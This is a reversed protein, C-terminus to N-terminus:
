EYAIYRYNLRECGAGNGEKCTPGTGYLWEAFSTQDNPVETNPVTYFARSNGNRGYVDDFDKAFRKNFEHEIDKQMGSSTVDCARPRLPRDKFDVVSPNMFPNEVTPLMCVTGDDEIAVNNEKMYSQMADSRETYFRAMAYTTLGAVIPLFVWNPERLALALFVGIYLFFRLIANIKEAFTMGTMPLVQYFANSDFLIRPDQFWFPSSM